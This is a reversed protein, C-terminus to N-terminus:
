EWEVVQALEALGRGGRKRERASVTLMVGSVRRRSIPIHKEKQDFHDIRAMFEIRINRQVESPPGAENTCCTYALNKSITTVELLPVANLAESSRTTTLLILYYAIM